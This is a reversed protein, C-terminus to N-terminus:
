ADRMGSIWAEVEGRRKKKLNLFEAPAYVTGTLKNKRPVHLHMRHSQGSTM